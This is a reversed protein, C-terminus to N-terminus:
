DADARSDDGISAIRALPPSRGTEFRPGSADAGTTGDNM